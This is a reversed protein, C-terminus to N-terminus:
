GGLRHITTRRSARRTRWRGETTVKSGRSSDKRRVRYIGGLVAPKATESAPCGIRFWGGTDVVLLSADKRDQLVDTPHFDTDTSTLFPESSVHFGAGDRTVVHRDIRHPNFLASFLNGDFDHGFADGQFRALGSIAVWGLDGVQQLPEGTRPFENM